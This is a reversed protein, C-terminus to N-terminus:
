TTLVATPFRRSFLMLDKKKIKLMIRRQAEDRTWIYEGRTSDKFGEMEARLGKGRGMHHPDCHRNLPDDGGGINYRFINYNLGDPSVLWDVLEDVKDDDWKGCMNAWWCLSVGWGEHRQYTTSIDITGVSVWDPQANISPTGILCLAAVLLTRFTNM